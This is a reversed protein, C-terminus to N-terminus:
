SRTLTSCRTCSAINCGTYCTACSCDCDQLCQFTHISDSEFLHGEANSFFSWCCCIHVNLLCLANHFICHDSSHCKNQLDVNWPSVGIECSRPFPAKSKRHVRGWVHIMPAASHCSCAAHQECSPHNNAFSVIKSVIRLYLGLPLIPAAQHPRRRAWFSWPADVVCSFFFWQVVM